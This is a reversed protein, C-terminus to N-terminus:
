PEERLDTLLKRARRHDAALGAPSDAHHPATLAQQLEQRAAEIQGLRLLTEGLYLRNTANTPALGVAKQLLEQSKHLDGVSFPPGPAEYYIRGLTRWPGAQDYAPNIAAAEELNAIIQPLLKRGQWRNVDALGALNLALWYPGAVEGPFEAKLTAAYERGREYCAQREAQPSEEGLLYATRALRALLERREPGQAPLLEQYIQLAQSLKDRNVEPAAVLKDAEAMGAAAAPASTSLNLLLFLLWWSKLIQFFLDTEVLKWPPLVSAPRAM